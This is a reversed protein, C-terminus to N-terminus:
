APRAWTPPCFRGASRPLGRDDSPLSGSWEGGDLGTPEARLTSPSRWPNDPEVVERSVFPGRDRGGDFGLLCGLLGDGCRAEFWQRRSVLWVRGWSAPGSIPAGARMARFLLRPTGRGGGPRAGAERRLRRRVSGRSRGARETVGANGSM